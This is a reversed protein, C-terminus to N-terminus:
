QPRTGRDPGLGRQDIEVPGDAGPEAVPERHAGFLNPRKGVRTDGTREAREEPGRRDPASSAASSMLGLDTLM